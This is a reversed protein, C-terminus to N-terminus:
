ASYRPPFSTSRTTSSSAGTGPISSSSPGTNARPKAPSWRTPPSRSPNSKRRKALTNASKTKPSPPAACSSTAGSDAPSPIPSWSSRPLNRRPWRLRASSPKAPAARCYSSARAAPGFPRPPTSSIIVCSGATTISPSPTPSAMSTAPSTKQRGAQRSSPKNSAAASPLLSPSPTRTSARASSNEPLAAPLNKWSPRSMPSSSSATPRTPTSASAATAPCPKPSTSLCPRPSQFAPTTKWSTSSRSPMTGPRAPM